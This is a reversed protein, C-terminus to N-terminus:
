LVNLSQKGLPSIRYISQGSKTFSQYVMGMNKLKSLYSGATLWMGKGSCAGNGTNKVKLWCPSDPWMKEAFRNASISEVDNLILLAKRAKESLNMILFTKYSENGTLKPLM